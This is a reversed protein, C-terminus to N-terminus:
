QVIYNSILRGKDFGSISLVSLEQGALPFRIVLFDIGNRKIFELQIESFAVDPIYRTIQRMVLEKLSDKAEPILEFLFQKIGVGLDPDEPYTRPETLLLFQIRKALGLMGTYVKNDGFLDVDFSTEGKIVSDLIDDM